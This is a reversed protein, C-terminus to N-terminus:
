SLCRGHKSFEKIFAKTNEGFYVFAQGQLPTNAPAGDADLFRIRGAKFCVASAESLLSQFWATETANNVLVIAQSVNGAQWEELTKRCFDAIFPQGYPPNLWVNGSWSKQLGDQEATIFKAAKVQKNAVKCSAPDLDISGMVVRASECYEAPTYWENNGSNNSVHPTKLKEVAAQRQATTPKEPLAKAAAVVDKKPADIERKAISPAIGLKDVAEAYEGDRRVTKENVGLQKAVAESARDILPVNHGKSKRDGGKSSKVRNYIRGRLLSAQEPTLNRRGLQNKDVWDFAQERTAFSLEVIAYDIGNAECIRKRNHGDLLIGEEKWVVLPDICGHSIINQELQCFELPELPPIMSEFESDVIIRATEM